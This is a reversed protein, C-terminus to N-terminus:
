REARYHIYAPILFLLGGVLMIAGWWLNPNRLGWWLHQHVLTVPTQNQPHFLYNVGTLTVMLGLVTLMLGVFFWISLMKKESM